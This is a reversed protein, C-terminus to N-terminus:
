PRGFKVLKSLVFESEDNVLIDFDKDRKHKLIKRRIFEDPHYVLKDLDEPNGRQVLKYCIRNENIKILFDLFLGWINKKVKSVVGM